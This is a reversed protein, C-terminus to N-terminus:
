QPWYTKKLQEWHKPLVTGTESDSMLDGPNTEITYTCSKKSWVTYYEDRFGLVHGFEHALSKMRTHNYLQMLNKGRQVFSRNGIEDGVKVEFGPAPKKIPDLKVKYESDVNWNKEVWDIFKGADEAFVSVDIPVILTKDEIRAEKYSHMEFRGVDHKIDEDFLNILKRKREDTTGPEGLSGLIFKYEGSNALFETQEASLNLSTCAQNALCLDAQDAIVKLTPASDHSIGMFAHSSLRDQEDVICSRVVSNLRMWNNDVPLNKIKEYFRFIEQWEWTDSVWKNEPPKASAKANLFKFRGLQTFSADSGTESKKSLAEIESRKAELVSAIELVKDKNAFDCPEFYEENEKGYVSIALQGLDGVFPARDTSAVAPDQKKSGCGAAFLLAGLLFSGVSFKVSSNVNM